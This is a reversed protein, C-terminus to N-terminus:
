GIRRLESIDCAQLLASASAGIVSHRWWPAVEALPALVFPRESLRPHPLELENTKIQMGAYDLLDLDLTRSAWRLGRQRGFMREIELLSLLVEAPEVNGPTCIAVANTFAPQSPDPWAPSLWFGSRALCEHGAEQVAELAKGLLRPGDLSGFPLNSGLGLAFWVTNPQKMM